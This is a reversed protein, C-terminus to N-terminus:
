FKEFQPLSPFLTSTIGLHPCLPGLTILGYVHSMPVVGLAKDGPAVYRSPIATAATLLIEAIVARHSLVVAKPLGTTGSSFCLFAVRPRAPDLPQPHIVTGEAAAAKGLDILEDITYLAEAQDDVTYTQAVAVGAVYLDAWKGRALVIVNDDKIGVARAAALARELSTPHAILYQAGSLRLQHALEDVTGSADSPAVTAGALHSAWIATGFDVDNTSVIGVVPGVTYKPDHRRTALYSLGLHKQLGLALANVREKLLAPTRSEGTIADLFWPQNGLPRNFMFEYLTIDETPLIPNLAM